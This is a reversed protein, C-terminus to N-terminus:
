KAGLMRLVFFIVIAGVLGGGCLYYAIGAGAPILAITGLAIEIMPDKMSLPFEGAVDLLPHVTQEAEVRTTVRDEPGHRAGFRGSRSV